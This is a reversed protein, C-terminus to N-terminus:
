GMFLEFREGAAEEGKKEEVWLALDAM